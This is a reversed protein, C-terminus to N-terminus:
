GDSQSSQHTADALPTHRKVMEHAQRVPSDTVPPPTGHLMDPIGDLNNAIEDQYFKVCSLDRLTDILKDIVIDKLPQILQNIRPSRTPDLCSLIVKDDHWLAVHRRDLQRGLYLFL